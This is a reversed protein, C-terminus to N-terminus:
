NSRALSRNGATKTKVAVEQKLNLRAANGKWILDLGREAAFLGLFRQQEPTSVDRVEFPRAVKHFYVCDVKWLPAKTSTWNM